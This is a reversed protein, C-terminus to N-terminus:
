RAIELKNILPNQNLCITKGKLSPYSNSNLHRLLLRCIVLICPLLIKAFRANLLAKIQIWNGTNLMCLLFVFSASNTIVVSAWLPAMALIADKVDWIRTLAISKSLLCLCNSNRKVIFLYLSSNYDLDGIM